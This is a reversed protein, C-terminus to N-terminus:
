RNTNEKHVNEYLINHTERSYLYLNGQPVPIHQPNQVRPFDMGWDMPKSLIEFEAQFLM